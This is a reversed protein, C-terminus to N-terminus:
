RGKKKINNVLLVLYYACEVVDDDDNKAVVGCVQAGRYLSHDDFVLLGVFVCQHFVCCELSLFIEGHQEKPDM